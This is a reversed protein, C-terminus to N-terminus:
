WYSQRMGRYCIQMDAMAFVLLNEWFKSCEQKLLQQNVHEVQYFPLVDKLLMFKYRKKVAAVVRLDCSQKWSTVNSTFCRVVVNERQFVEFHGPTNDMLLLVPHCTRRRVEPLFSWQVLEMFVFKQAAYKLYMNPNWLMSVQQTELNVNISIHSM